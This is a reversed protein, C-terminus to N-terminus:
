EAATAAGPATSDAEATMKTETSRVVAEMLRERIADLRADATIQLGFSDRVYFVDM